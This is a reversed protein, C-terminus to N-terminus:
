NNIEIGLNFRKIKKTTTKNFETHRIKIRKINKYYPIAKNIISIDNNLQKSPNKINEEAIYENDLFVEATITPERRIDDKESYVVVEKVYPINLVLMELEEPYINKGNSLLILNKKRGTIFLFGDKDVKGIDGTRFWEEEMVEETLGTNNYYGLMVNQGKVLIEGDDSNHLKDIKVECCPLVQGISGDKYYDNRNVSVIPSCETIGYGNLVNIGFDRLGKVYRPDLPAGGCVIIKLEGGFGDLVTKFFKRRLDIGVELLANSIKILKRLLGTKGNKQATIWIKKYMKEVFLPVLFLHTPKYFEMDKSVNKLSSNICIKTGVHLMCLVGAVFGFTHHLPLVLVSVDYVKVNNLAAVTNAAINEHSLMVGKGVGTTGSTYIIAALKGSDIDNDIFSNDGQAILRQGEQLLAKYSKIKGSHGEAKMNIFYLVNTLDNEIEKIIDSYLDSYIITRCDSNILISKIEQATLEKDIPVIVNSGNVTAIYTTIWEYSNEGIIAIHCNKLGRNYFTTGLAEVDRKFQKYSIKQTENGKIKYEFAIRSSFKLACNNLLEKLNNVKDVKYIPYKLNKM